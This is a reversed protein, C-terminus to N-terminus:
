GFYTFFLSIKDLKSAFESGQARTWCPKDVLAGCVFFFGQEPGVLDVVSTLPSPPGAELTASPKGLCCPLSQLKGLIEFPRKAQLFPWMYHQLILLTRQLHVQELEVVNISATGLQAGEYHQAM